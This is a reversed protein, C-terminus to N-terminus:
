KEIVDFYSIFYPPQSLRLKEKLAKLMPEITYEGKEKKIDFIALENYDVFIPQCYAHIFENFKEDYKNYSPTSLIYNIQMTDKLFLMIQELDRNEMLQNKGNETYYIDDGAWYYIGKKNTYYYLLPLNNVLINEDSPISEIFDIIPSIKENKPKNFLLYIREVFPKKEKVIKEKNESSRFYLYSIGYNLFLSSFVLLFFLYKYREIKYYHLYNWFLLLVVSITIPLLTLQYRSNFYGKVGVLLLSLFYAMLFAKEWRKRFFGLRFYAFILLPFVLWNINGLYKFNFFHGLYGNLWLKAPTEIRRYILNIDNINEDVRVQLIYLIGIVLFFLFIPIYINKLKNNM